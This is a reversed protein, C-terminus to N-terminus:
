AALQSVKHSAGERRKQRFVDVGAEVNLPAM